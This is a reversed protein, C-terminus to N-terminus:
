QGDANPQHDLRHEPYAGMTATLLSCLLAAPIITLLFPEYSGFHDFLASATLPGLGTGTSILAAIFGFLAGYNRMGFYRTALYIVSDLEAGISLGLVAAAAIGVPVSGPALLLLLASVAPLGLSIAAVQPGKTRDLLLGVSLRGIISTVGLTGAIGAATARAIGTGSLMPVLHVVTGVIIATAILAVLALTYFSRSRLGQHVTLGALAVPSPSATRRGIDRADFFFLVLIPLIIVAWGMGLGAFALRWGFRDILFNAALPTVLSGVGTGCLAVALAFGRGTAFRSSLASSWVTPKVLVLSLALLVWLLWWNWIQAGTLGLLAFAAFYSAAGVLGIHRAGWRDVFHGFVPSLFFAFVSPIMMAGTMASRPWGFERELPELFLGISYLHIGSVVFGFGSALVVTWGAKWESRAGTTQTMRTGGRRQAGSRTARQM